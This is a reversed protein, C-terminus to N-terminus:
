DRPSPSTYLLCTCTQITASPTISTTNCIISIPDITATPPQKVIVQQSNTTEGCSNTGALEITYTGPTVFNFSPSASTASTGNTFSWNEPTTGCFDSAYTVQWQYTPPICSTSEDTTNTTTVDLPTCGTTASLNFQPNVPAEVCITQTLVDLGCRNGVTQTITYTGAQTFNVCIIESGTLWLGPDTSGFDNGLDGSNLTFTNPSIQWIVNPNTSCNTDSGNTANGISLDEFCVQTNICSPATPFTFDAEPISSVYIPVVGVSSSSCPNSAVINASFSNAYTNSGDSSTTNCSSNAFTHTISTPPPHNFIQSPSGDNFTITYTTGPPNNDTGTIPFTLADTNCIDTNGPNGLSVAPNSGVFVTYEQTTDCGNNGQITYTLTYIGINYDHMTTTWTTATFDSSGDGWNITYNSNLSSTTSSINTFTFTATSASNDCVTFVPQNPVSGTGGMSADPGETINVTVNGSVANTTGAQDQVETLTYTFSGNNDTSVPLMATNGTSTITQPAGTGITYTFTYPATGASGTFTIVPSDNYQCVTTIDVSITANPMVASHVNESVLSSANNLQLSFCVLLLAFLYKKVM